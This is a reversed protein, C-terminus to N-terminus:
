ADARACAAQLKSLDARAHGLEDELLLGRIFAARGRVWFEFLYKAVKWRERHEFFARPSAERVGPADFEQLVGWVAANQRLLLGLRDTFEGARGQNQFNQPGRFNPQNQHDEAPDREDERNGANEFFARTRGTEIRFLGPSGFFEASGEFAADTLNM